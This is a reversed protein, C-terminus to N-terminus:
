SKATGLLQKEFCERAKKWGSEAEARLRGSEEKRRFVENVIADQIKPPPLPIELARITGYDLAIRTGGTVGRNSLAMGVSSNLFAALYVPRCDSSTVRLRVIHQNINAPLIEQPVVAATGVRGTITMLVDNASLQSRQLEGKHVHSRIYKVDSLDIENPKVNLIRLFHIGTNTYLESDGRRPTAGGGLEPSLVGLTKKPYPCAALAALVERYHPQHFLADFRSGIIERQRLAFFSHKATAPVTLSLTKLLFGDLGSLLADAEALKARREARAADMANTLSDQEEPSLLPFPLQELFTQTVRQHGASGTFAYQAVRRLAAQNLFEWIFKSSVKPNKVRVVHFETSGFGIGNKLGSVICSKGNQMCPTIKAWLIDGNAFPTYGKSVESLSRETPTYNGSAGDEVADMPIFSVPDDAELDGVPILPNFEAFKSLSGSCHPHKQLRSLFIRLEPAYLSAGIGNGTLDGRRVAFCQAKGDV